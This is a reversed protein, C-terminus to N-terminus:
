SAPNIKESALRATKLRAKVEKKNWFYVFLFLSRGVKRKFARGMIKNMM